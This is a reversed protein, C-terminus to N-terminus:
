VHARGIQDSGNLDAGDIHAGQLDAKRLILRHKECASWDVGARPEDTCAAHLALPALLFALVLIAPYMFLM